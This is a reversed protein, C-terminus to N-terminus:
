DVFYHTAHLHRWARSGVKGDFMATGVAELDSDMLVLGKLAKQLTKLSSHIVGILRNFRVLEQCLVTNMSEYYDVPYKYRVAEIDFPQAVRRSIDAALEMLLADKGLDGGGGSSGQLDGFIVKLM